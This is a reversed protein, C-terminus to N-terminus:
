ANSANPVEWARLLTTSQYDGCNAIAAFGFREFVKTASGPLTQTCLKATPTAFIQTFANSLLVGTGTNVINSRRIVNYVDRGNTSTAFFSANPLLNPATGTFAVGSGAGTQTVLTVAASQNDVSAGNRQAIYASAAIGGIAIFNDATLTVSGNQTTVTQGIAADARAKLIDPKSEQMRSTATPTCTNVAPADATTSTGLGLVTALYFSHTGSSTQIGCPLLVVNGSGDPDAVELLTGDNFASTLQAQTLTLAESAASPSADPRYAMTTVADRAFPISVVDSATTAGGLASTRAYQAAGTINIPTTTCTPLVTGDDLTFTPGQWGTGQGNAAGFARRGAGSGNPRTFTPGNLIPTICNDAATQSPAADFSIIHRFSGVSGSNVALYTQGNNFGSFANMVDQTTDSGVGVLANLQTPDASASNPIFGAAGVVAALAIGSAVRKKTIKFM